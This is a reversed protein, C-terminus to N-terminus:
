RLGCVPIQPNALRRFSMSSYNAYRAGALCKRYKNGASIGHTLYYSTLAKSAEGKSRKGLTESLTEQSQHRWDMERYLHVIMALSMQVMVPGDLIGASQPLYKSPEWVRPCVVTPLADM